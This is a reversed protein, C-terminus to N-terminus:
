RSSRGHRRHARREGRLPRELVGLVHRRMALVAHEALHVDHFVGFVTSSWRNSRISGGDPRVNEVFNRRKASADESASSKPPVRSAESRGADEGRTATKDGSAKGGNAGDPVWWRRASAARGRSRRPAPGDEGREEADDAAARRREGRRVGGHHRRARPQPPLLGRHVRAARLVARVLRHRRGDGRVHHADVRSRSASSFRSWAHAIDDFHILGGHNRAELGQGDPCAHGPWHRRGRRLVARQGRRSCTRGSRRTTPSCLRRTSAPSSTTAAAHAACGGRGRRYAQEPVRGHVAAPRPHRLRSSPRVAPHRQRDHSARIVTGILTRM